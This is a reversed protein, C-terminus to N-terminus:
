IRLLKLLDRDTRVSSLTYAEQMRATEPFLIMVSCQTKMFHLREYLHLFARGAHTEADRQGVLILLHDYNVNNIVGNMDASEGMPQYLVKGSSFVRGTGRVADLASNKGYFDTACGITMSLRSLTDMSKEFGYDQVVPGPVLVTMRRITNLPITLRLFAQQVGCNDVLPRIINEYYNATLHESPPLGMMIQTSEFENAAHVISGTINTGVRNQMRFPVEAAAAQAQAELLTDKGDSMYKHTHDGGVTIHLGVLEDKRRSNRVALAFDMLARTTSSGSLCVLMSEDQTVNGKTLDSKLILETARETIINSLICSFLVILVTTSLITNDIIGISYAGMIIALAGAAHSESLGFLVMRDARSMHCFKQIIWAPIWKGLTAAAFLLLFFLLIDMDGFLEAPKIMLGTNLLFLPIFLTNGTFDLRNMLPSTAPIYRNLVIGALFAGLVGELGIIGALGCSLALMMLVFLFHSNSNGSKRFFLRAVRPYIFIIFSVYIAFELLFFWISFSDDGKAASQVFSYIVLALVIAVLAGSVSVAVSQRRGLGHRSIIPYSILTHSGLVCSIVAAAPASAKLVYLSTFYCIVWPVAFTLIGFAIGQSRTKKMEELDIGLGAFFMIMLLGIRSFFELVNDPALLDLCGPGVLVGIIILGAIQPFRIRAMLPPIALVIALVLFAAWIGDSLPFISSWDM